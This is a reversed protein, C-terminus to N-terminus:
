CANSHKGDVNELDRRIAYVDEITATPMRILLDEEAFATMEQLLTLAAADDKESFLKFYRRYCFKGMKYLNDFVTSANFDKVDFCYCRKNNSMENMVCALCHINMTGDKNLTKRLLLEALTCGTSSDM